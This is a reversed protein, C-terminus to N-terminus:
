EEEAHADELQQQLRGTLSAAKEVLTEAEAIAEEAMGKDTERDEKMTELKEKMQTISAKLGRSQKLVFASIFETMGQASSKRM